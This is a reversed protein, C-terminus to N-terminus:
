AKGNYGRMGSMKALKTYLRNCRSSDCDVQRMPVHEIAYLYERITRRLLVHEKSRQAITKKAPM